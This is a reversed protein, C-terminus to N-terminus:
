FYFHSKECVWASSVILAIILYKSKVITLFSAL